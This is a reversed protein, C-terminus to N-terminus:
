VKPCTRGENTSFEVEGAKLGTTVEGMTGVAKQGNALRNDVTATGGTSCNIVIHYGAEETLSSAVADFVDRLRETSDVQVEIDRKNGSTDQKVVKYPPADVPKAEETDTGCATLTALLLGAAALTTRTRM